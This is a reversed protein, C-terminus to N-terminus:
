SLRAFMGPILAVQPGLTVEVTRTRMRTDLEPYVLSVRGEFTKGPYADLQVTVPLGKFVLTTQAEPVALRIVLSNPDYGRGPSGPPSM